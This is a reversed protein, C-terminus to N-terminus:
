AVYMISGLTGDLSDILRAATVHAPEANIRGMPTNILDTRIKSPRAIAVRVAPYQLPATRALGECAAKMAVYHPWGAVPQEVASSSIVLMTGRRAEVSGLWACVPQCVLDIGARIFATIREAGAPELTLQPLAPAASCVLLDLGGEPDLLKRRLALCWDLDSADGREMAITGPLARSAQVVAQADAQSRAYVGIVRAGRAALALALAAGLGRSAGTVLATRGAWAPEAPLPAAVPIREPRIIVHLDGAAISGADDALQLSVSARDMRRDFKTLACAFRLPGAPPRAPEFMASCNIYMANEGPIEMGVAYSSLLLFVLFGDGWATRRLGMREILATFEASPPQYRAKIAAASDIDGATFVAASSRPAGAEGWAISRSPGPAFRVSVRALLKSGDMLLVSTEGGTTGSELEVTYTTNTYVPNRFRLEVAAPAQGEPVPTSALCRLAALVGHVVPQGFPTLRAYESSVHLPNHDWSAAAFLAVDQGNFIISSM